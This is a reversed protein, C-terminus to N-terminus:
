LQSRSVKLLSTNDYYQPVLVSRDLPPPPGSSLPAKDVADPAISYLLYSRLVICLTAVINYYLHNSGAAFHMCVCMGEELLDEVDEEMVHGTVGPFVTTRPPQGFVLEFPTAKM